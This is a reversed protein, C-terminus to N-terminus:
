FLSRALELKEKVYDLNEKDISKTKGVYSALEWVSTGTIEAARALSIGHEYVVAGKKLQANDIVKEIYLQMKDSIKAIIDILEKAKQSYKIFDNEILSSVMKELYPRVNKKVEYGEQSIIKSLAYLIIACNISDEDQYISANHITFNSLGKLQTVDKNDLYAIARNLSNLIDDKVQTQM